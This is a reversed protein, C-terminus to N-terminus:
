DKLDPPENNIEDGFNNRFNELTTPTFYWIEMITGDNPSAVIALGSEPFVYTKFSAEAFPGYGEYEPKGYKDVYNQLSGRENGIVQEKVLELKGNEVVLTHPRYQNSSSYKLNTQSDTTESSLPNGFKRNIEEQTSVGPVLGFWFYSKTKPTLFYIAAVLSIAMIAAIVIFLKNSIINQTQKLTPPIM